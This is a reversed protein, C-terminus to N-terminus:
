TPPQEPEWTARTGTIRGMLEPDDPIIGADPLRKLLEVWGPNAQFPARMVQIAEEL